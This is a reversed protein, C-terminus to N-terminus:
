SGPLKLIESGKKRVDQPTPMRFEIMKLSILINSYSCLVNEAWNAIRNSKTLVESNRPPPHQVVLGGGWSVGSNTHIRHNYKELLLLIRYQTQKHLYVPGDDSQSTEHILKEVHAACVETRWKSGYLRPTRDLLEHFFKALHIFICCTFCSAWQFAYAFGNYM